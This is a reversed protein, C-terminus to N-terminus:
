AAVWERLAHVARQTDGGVTRCKRCGQRGASNDAGCSSCQWPRPTWDVAEVTALLDRFPSIEALDEVFDARVEDDRDDLLVAVLPQFSPDTAKTAVCTGVASRLAPDDDALFAEAVRKPDEALALRVKAAYTRQHPRPFERLARELVQQESKSMGRHVLASGALAPLWRGVGLAKIVVDRARDEDEVNDWHEFARDDGDMHLMQTASPASSSEGATEDLLLAAEAATRGGHLGSLRLLALLVERLFDPHHRYVDSPEFAAARGVRISTWYDILDNLRRREGFALPAHDASSAIWGLIV